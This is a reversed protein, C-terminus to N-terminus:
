LREQMQMELDLISTYLMYMCVVVAVSAPLHKNQEIQMVLVSHRSSCVEKVTDCNFKNKEIFTDLEDIERVRNESLNKKKKKTPRPTKPHAHSISSSPIEGFNISPHM